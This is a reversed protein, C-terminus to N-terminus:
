EVLAIPGFVDWQPKPNLSGARSGAGYQWDVFGYSM